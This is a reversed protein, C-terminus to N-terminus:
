VTRSVSGLRFKDTNEDLARDSKKLSKFTHIQEMEKVHPVEYCKGIEKVIILLLHIFKRFNKM